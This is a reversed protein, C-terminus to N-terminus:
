ASCKLWIKQLCCLGVDSSHVAVGARQVVHRVSTSKLICSSLLFLFSTADRLSRHAVGGVQGSCHWHWTGLGHHPLVSTKASAPAPSPEMPLQLGPVATTARPVQSRGLPREWLLLSWSHSDSGPLECFPKASKVWRSLGVLWIGPCFPAGGQRSASLSSDTPM